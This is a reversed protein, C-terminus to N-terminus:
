HAYLDGTENQQLDPTESVNASERIAWPKLTANQDSYMAAISAEPMSIVPQPVMGRPIFAESTFAPPAPLMRDEEDFIGLQAPKGSGFFEDEM